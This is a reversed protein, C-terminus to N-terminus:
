YRVCKGFANKALKWVQQGSIAVKRVCDNLGFVDQAVNRPCSVFVRFLISLTFQMIYCVTIGLRTTQSESLM